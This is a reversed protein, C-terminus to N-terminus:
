IFLFRNTRSKKTENTLDLFQPMKINGNIFSTTLFIVGNYANTKIWHEVM